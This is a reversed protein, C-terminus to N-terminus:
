QAGRAEETVSVEGFLSAMRRSRDQMWDQVAGGVSSPPASGRLVLAALYDAEAEDLGAQTDDVPLDVMQGPLGPWQSRLHDEVAAANASSVATHGCVVHAIEHAAVLETAVGWGGDGRAMPRPVMLTNVTGVRLRGGCLGNVASPAVEHLTITEGTVVEARAAVAEITWPVTEPVALRRALGWLEIMRRIRM